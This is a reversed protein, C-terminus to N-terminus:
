RKSSFSALLRSRNTVSASTKYSIRWRWTVISPPVSDLRGEVSQEADDIVHKVDIASGSLSSFLNDKPISAKGRTISEM